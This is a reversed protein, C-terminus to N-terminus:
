WGPAQVLNTNKDVESQPLPMWYWKDDWTRVHDLLKTRKFFDADVTSQWNMGEAPGDLEPIQDAIVWRRIDTFRQGEAFTEVRREMRVVKRVAEQTDAIRIYQYNDATFSYERVGARRRIGNLYRLAEARKEHSDYAENVAEAYDPYRIGLRYLFNPRPTSVWGPNGRDDDHVKKRVLYCTVPSNWDGNNERKHRLMFDLSRKLKKNWQGHFNVDVYFRPERNCWMNYTGANTVEGANGSGGEFQTDRKDIDQSFGTEVYGSAADDIPLGNKMFFADVMSQSVAMFGAHGLTRPIAIDEWAEWDLRTIGGFRGTYPFTIEENGGSAYKFFLNKCSLFPDITGDANYETYLKHGAAHARDILLKCADAARVWKHADYGQPFLKEGDRNAFDSCKGSGNVLPSANFLLMQSRVTLAMIATARGYKDTESYKDPLLESLALLEKDLWNIMEDWPTRKQFYEEEPADSAVPKEPSFPMPGFIMAEMWYYYCVLFRMELKMNDVDKQTLGQDPLAHVRQNFLQASRILKPYFQLLCSYGWWTQGSSVDDNSPTFGDYLMAISPNYWTSTKHNLVINDGWQDGPYIGTYTMVEPGPIGSYCYSLAANVKERNNFAMDMTLETDPQKDLYDSCSTAAAMVAVAATIHLALRRLSCKIISTRM